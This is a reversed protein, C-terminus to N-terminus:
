EPKKGERQNAFARDIAAQQEPTLPARKKSEPYGTLDTLNGNEETNETNQMKGPKKGAIKGPLSYTGRGARQVEGDRIMKWLLQYVANRDSRGTAGMVEAVSLGSDGAAALADLIAKREDSRQVESAVGVISWAGTLRDFRMALSTDDEIDRGRIHLATGEARKTLVMITDVAGTLGLTGSVTDFVDDAAMKRDHHNVIVGVGFQEALAQLGALADHDNQYPSAKPNGPARVKALTDVIILRASAASECWERIDELGGQYFRRWKTAVALRKPWEVADGCLKRMRRQLRRKGDELGLYLVDGPICPGADSRGLAVTPTAVALALTLVLWSKGIKPRGALIALGEPLLGPIIYKLPDFKTKQLDHATVMGERWAAGKAKRREHRQTREQDGNDAGAGTRCDGGANGNAKTSGDIIIPKGGLMNQIRELLLARGGLEEILGLDHAERFLVERAYDAQVRGAAVLPAVHKRISWGYRELSPNETLVSGCLGLANAVERDLAPDGDSSADSRADPTACDRLPEQMHDAGGNGGPAATAQRPTASAAGNGEPAGTPAAHGNTPKPGLGLSVWRGIAQRDGGLLEILGGSDLKRCILRGL